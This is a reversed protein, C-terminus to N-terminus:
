GLLIYKSLTVIFFFINSNATTKTAPHPEGAVTSLTAAGTATTLDDLEVCVVLITVGLTMVVSGGVVSAGEVMGGFGGTRGVGVVVCCFGTGVVAAGTLGLLTGEPDSSCNKRQTIIRSDRPIGVARLLDEPALPKNWYKSEVHLFRPYTLRNPTVFAM